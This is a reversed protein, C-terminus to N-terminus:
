FDFLGNPERVRTRRLFFCVFKVDIIMFDRLLASVHEDKFYLFM